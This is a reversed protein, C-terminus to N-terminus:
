FTFEPREAHYKDYHEWARKSINSPSSAIGTWQAMRRKKGPGLPLDKCFKCVWHGKRPNDPGATFEFCDEFRRNDHGNPRVPLLDNPPLIPRDQEVRTPRATQRAQQPNPRQQAAYRPQVEIDPVQFPASSNLDYFGDHNSHLQGNAPLQLQSPDITDTSWEHESSYYNAHPVQLDPVISSPPLPPSHTDSPSWQRSRGSTDTLDSPYDLNEFLPSRSASRSDRSDSSATPESVFALGAFESGFAGQEEFASSAAIRTTTDDEEQTPPEYYHSLSGVFFPQPAPAPAAAPPPATPADRDSPNVLAGTSPTSISRLEIRPEPPEPSPSPHSRNQASQVHRSTSASAPPPSRYPSAYDPAALPPLANVIRISGVSVPGASGRSRNQAPLAHRSASGPPPPPPPLAPKTTARPQGRARSTQPSEYVVRAHAQQDQGTKRAASSLLIPSEQKKRHRTVANARITGIEYDEPTSHASSLQRSPTHRTGLNDLMPEYDEDESSDDLEESSEHEESGDEDPPTSSM